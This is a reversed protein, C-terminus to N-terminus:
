SQKALDILQRMISTLEKENAQVHSVDNFYAMRRDKYNGELLGSAIGVIAPHHFVLHVRSANRLNFTVLDHNTYYSPANWKIRERLTPSAAKIISRVAHVADLLPHQLAAMYADVAQVDTLKASKKM